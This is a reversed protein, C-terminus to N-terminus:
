LREFIQQLKNNANAYRKIIEAYSNVHKTPIFDEDAIFLNKSERKFIEEVISKKMEFDLPNILENITSNVYKEKETYKLYQTIDDFIKRLGGDYENIGCYVAQEYQDVNKYTKKFIDLAAIQLKETTVKVVESNNYRLIHQYFRSISEILDEYSDSKNKDYIYRSRAEDIIALVNDNVYNPNLRELLYEVIDSQIKNVGDDDHLNNRTRKIIGHNFTLQHLIAIDDYDSEKSAQIVRIYDDKGVIPYFGSNKILKLPLSLILSNLKNGFEKPYQKVYIFYHLYKDILNKSNDIKKQFMNKELSDWFRGENNSLLYDVINFDTVKPKVLNSFYNRVLSSSVIAEKSLSNKVIDFLSNVAILDIRGRLGRFYSRIKEFEKPKLISMSSESELDPYLFTDISKDKLAAEVKELLDSVQSIDGLKSAIHGTFVTNQSLPIKLVKSLLSLFIPGDASYGSLSYNSDSSSLAGINSISLEFSCPPIKLRMSIDDVQPLITDRIHTQLEADFPVVGGFKLRESKDFELESALISTIVAPGEQSVLVGKARGIIENITTINENQNKM